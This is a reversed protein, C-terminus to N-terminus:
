VIEVNDHDNEGNFGDGEDEEDINPESSEKQDSISKQFIEHVHAELNGLVLIFHSVDAVAPKLTKEAWNVVFRTDAWANPQLFVDVDKDWSAKEVAILRLGKGRFIIALRSSM